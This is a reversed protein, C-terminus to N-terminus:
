FHTISPVLTQEPSHWEEQSYHRYGPSSEKQVLHMLAPYKIEFGTKPVHMTETEWHSGM